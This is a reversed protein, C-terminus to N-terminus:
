VYNLILDKLYKLFISIYICKFIIILFIDVFSFSSVFWDIVIFSSVLRGRGVIVFFYFCLIGKFCFICRDRILWIVVFLVFFDVDRLM